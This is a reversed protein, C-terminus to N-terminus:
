LLQADIGPRIRFCAPPSPQGHTPAAGERLPLRDRKRGRGVGSRRESGACNVGKIRETM